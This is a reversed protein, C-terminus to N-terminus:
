WNFYHGIQENVFSRSCIFYMVTIFTDNKTLQHSFSPFLISTRYCPKSIILTLKWRLLNNNAMREFSTSYLQQPKFICLHVMVFDIQMSNIDTMQQLCQKMAKRLVAVNPKTYEDLFFHLIIMWTLVMIIVSLILKKTEMHDYIAIFAPDM